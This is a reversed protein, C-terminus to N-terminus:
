AGLGSKGSPLLLLLLVLTLIVCLQVHLTFSCLCSCYSFIYSDIRCDPLECVISTILKVNFPLLVLVLIFNFIEGSKIHFDILNSPILGDGCVQSAEPSSSVKQM